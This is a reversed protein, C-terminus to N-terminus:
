CIVLSTNCAFPFPMESVRIRWSKWMGLSNVVLKHFWLVYKRSSDRNHPFIYTHTHIFTYTHLHTHIYAHICAHMCAHRYTRIYARIYTHKYITTRCRVAVKKSVRDGVFDTTRTEMRYVVYKWRESYAKQGDQNQDRKNRRAAPIRNVIKPPLREEDIRQLHACWVLKKQGLTM